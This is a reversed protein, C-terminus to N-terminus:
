QLPHSHPGIGWVMQVFVQDVSGTDPMNSHKFQGRLYTSENLYKTVFATWGTEKGEIPVPFQTRDFRAGYEWYRDPKYAALLYYGSRTDSEGGANSRHMMYESRLLLRTFATPWRSYSLDLGTLTVSNRSADDLPDTGSGHLASLGIEIESLEGIARGMSLRGLSVLNDIGLGPEVEAEEEEHSHEEHSHGSARFRGGEFNIFTTTSPFLYTLSAGQILLGHDGLFATVVAPQDAYPRHHPHIPNVKGFPARLKGLRAGLGRAGLESITLYGEELSAQHSEENEMAVIVDARVGPYVGSQFAIELEELNLNNRDTFSKDTTFNGVVNGVVSIDPLQLARGASGAQDESQEIQALAVAPILALLLIIAKM